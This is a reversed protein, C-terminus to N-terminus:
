EQEFKRFGEPCHKKYLAIDAAYTQAVWQISEPSFRLLVSTSNRSSVKSTNETQLKKKPETGWRQFAAEYDDDLTELCLFTVGALGLSNDLYFQTIPLMYSQRREGVTAKMAVDHFPDLENRLATIYAEVGGEKFNEFFIRNATKKSAKGELRRAVGSSIRALPHRLTVLIRRAGREEMDRLTCDHDHYRFVTGLTTSGARAIALYTVEEAQFHSRIACDPDRGLVVLQLFPPVGGVDDAVNKVGTNTVSKYDGRFVETQNNKPLPPPTTTEAGLYDPLLPVQTILIALASTLLLAVYFRNRRFNLSNNERRNAIM